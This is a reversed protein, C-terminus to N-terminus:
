RRYVGDPRGNIVCVSACDCRCQRGGFDISREGFFDHFFEDFPTGQGGNVTGGSPAAKHMTAINVVAPTLKEALESFGDPGRAAAAASGLALTLAAAIVLSRNAVNMSRSAM